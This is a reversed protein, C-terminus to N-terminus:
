YNLCVPQFPASASAPPRSLETDYIPRIIAEVEEPRVNPGNYIQEYVEPTIYASPIGRRLMNSYWVQYRTNPDPQTHIPVLAAEYVGYMMHEVIKELSMNDNRTMLLFKENERRTREKKVMESGEHYAYAVIFILVLIMLLLFHGYYQNLRMMSSSRYFVDLFLHRRSM